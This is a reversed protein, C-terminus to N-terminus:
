FYLQLSINFFHIYLYLVHVSCLFHKVCNKHANRQAESLIFSDVICALWQIFDVIMIQNFEKMNEVQVSYLYLITWKALNPLALNYYDM